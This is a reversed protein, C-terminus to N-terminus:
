KSSGKKLVILDGFAKIHDMVIIGSERSSVRIKCGRGGCRVSEVRYRGFPIAPGWTPQYRELILEDGTEFPPPTVVCDRDDYSASHYRWRLYERTRQEDFGWREFAGRLAEVAIKLFEPFLEDKSVCNCDEWAQNKSLITSLEAELLKMYTWKDKLSNWAKELPIGPGVEVLIRLLVNSLKLFDEDSMADLRAPYEKFTKERISKLVLESRVRWYEEFPVKELADPFDELHFRNALELLFRQDFVKAIEDISIWYLGLARLYKRHASQFDKFSRISQRDLYRLYGEKFSLGPRLQNEIAFLAREVDNAMGPRLQRLEELVRTLLDFDKEGLIYGLDLIGLNLLAEQRSQHFMLRRVFVEGLDMVEKRDHDPHLSQLLLQLVILGQNQEPTLVSGLPGVRDMVPISLIIEGNYLAAKQYSKFDMEGEGPSAGKWLIYNDLLVFHTSSAVRMLSEYLSPSLDRVQELWFLAHCAYPKNFGARPEVVGPMCPMRSFNRYKGTEWAVAAEYPVPKSHGKPVVVLQGNGGTKQAEAEPWSFAGAILLISFIMARMMM